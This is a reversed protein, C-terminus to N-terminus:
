YGFSRIATAGNAMGVIDAKGDGNTDAIFRPHRSVLWGTNTAFSTSVRVASDWGGNGNSFSVYVGDAYCGIIDKKRDRDVDALFRPHSTVRWGSGYVFFNSVVAIKADFGNGNSYAVFVDAGGFGVIDAKGDGNMDTVFRPHMDERWGNNTGFNDIVRKPADFGGNANSYSVYM